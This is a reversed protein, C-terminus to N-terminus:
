LRDDGNKLCKGLSDVAVFEMLNRVFADRWEVCNSQLYLVLGKKDQTLPRRVIEHMRPAFTMPVHSSLRTSFELDFLAMHARINMEPYNAPSELSYYGWLQWAPKIFTTPPKVGQSILVLDAMEVCEDPVAAPLQLFLCPVSCAAIEAPDFGQVDFWRIFSAVVFPRETFSDVDPFGVNPQLVCKLPWPPRHNEAADTTDLGPQLVCTEDKCTEAQLTVNDTFRPSPQPRKHTAHRITFSRSSNSEGHPDSGAPVQVVSLAVVFLVLRRTTQTRFM